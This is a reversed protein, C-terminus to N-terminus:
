PLFFLDDFLAFVIGEAHEAHEAHEAPVRKRVHTSALGKKTLEKRLFSNVQTSVPTCIRVARSASCLGLVLRACLFLARGPAREANQADSHAFGISRRGM